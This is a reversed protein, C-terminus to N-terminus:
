QCQINLTDVNCAALCEPTKQTKIKLKCSEPNEQEGICTLKIKKICAEPCDGGTGVAQCQVAHAGTSYATFAILLSLIAVYKM